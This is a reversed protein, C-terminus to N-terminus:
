MAENGVDELGFGQGMSGYVMGAAVVEAEDISRGGEVLEKVVRRRFTNLDEEITEDEHGRKEDLTRKMLSVAEKLQEKKVTSRELNVTAKSLAETNKSLEAVAITLNTAAEATRNLRIDKALADVADIMGTASTSILNSAKAMARSSRNFSNAVKQLQFVVIVVCVVFFCSLFLELM